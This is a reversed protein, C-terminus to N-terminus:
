RKNLVTVFESRVAAVNIKGCTECKADNTPESHYSDGFKVAEKVLLSSSTLLLIAAVLPYILM